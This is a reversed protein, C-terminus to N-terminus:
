EGTLAQQVASLVKKDQPFRVWGKQAVMRDGVWVTFEGRDGEVLEPQIGLEHKILEAV